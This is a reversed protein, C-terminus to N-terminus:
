LNYLVFAQLSTHIVVSQRDTEGWDASIKVVEEM